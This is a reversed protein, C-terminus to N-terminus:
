ASQCWLRFDEGPHENGTVFYPVFQLKRDGVTTQLGVFEAGQFNTKSETFEQTPAIKVEDLASGDSVGSTQLGYVFPGRQLAVCGANAAVNPDPKVIEVPIDFKVSITENDWKKAAFVLYGNKVTFDTNTSSYKALPERISVSVPSTSNITVDISGSFPYDTKITCTYNDATIEQGIYLHVALLDEKVLVTYKELSNFLRAVNPPCCACVFWSQRTLGKTGTVPQDYYYSKGDLSVGGLVDNYLAREMTLAVKRDPKDYLMRECLMVLGISACTESYGYWRLDFPEGFGEWRGIAGIGGHIYFKKDVMNDFLKKVAAKLSDDKKMIALGQVGTLYYVMRVSHGVVEDMERVPKEAQYYWYSRPTPWMSDFDAEMHDYDAMPKYTDPDIGRARAEQDFFEGNNYGRQEIFYNLLKYYKENPVVRLLKVLALEIEEHGPYGHLKGEEEGFTNCLLDVYKCLCNVLEMSGTAEHHAVAAEILHGCCYLEHEEMINTFRAEPKMQTFYSNLYGDPQQAKKAMLVIQEIWDTYVKYNPDSEDTYKLSYCVAELFKAMDSDWFIHPKIDKMDKWNFDFFEWRGTDMLVKHMSPLTNERVTKIRGSWFPDVIFNKAKGEMDTVNPPSSPLIWLIVDNIFGFM